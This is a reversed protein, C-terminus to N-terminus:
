YTRKINAQIDINLFGERNWTLRIRDYRHNLPVKGDADTKLSEGRLIESLMNASKNRSFKDFPIPLHTRDSLTITIARDSLKVIPQSFIARGKKFFPTEDRMSRITNSLRRHRAIESCATKVIDALYEMRKDFQVFFKESIAATIKSPRLLHNKLSAKIVWNTATAYRDLEELLVVQKEKTLLVSQLKLITSNMGSM